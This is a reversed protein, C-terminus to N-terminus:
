DSVNALEQMGHYRRPLIMLKRASLNHGSMHRTWAYIAAPAHRPDMFVNDFHVGSLDGLGAHRKLMQGVM